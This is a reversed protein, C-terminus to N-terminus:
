TRPQQVGDYERWRVLAHLRRVLREGAEARQRLMHELRSTEHEFTPDLPDQDSRPEQLGLLTPEYRRVVALYIPLLLTCSVVNCLCQCLCPGVCLAIGLMVARALFSAQTYAEVVATANRQLVADAADDLTDFSM